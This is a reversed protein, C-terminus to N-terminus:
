IEIQLEVHPSMNVVCLEPRVESGKQVIKRRKKLEVHVSSTVPGVCVLNSAEQITRAGCM